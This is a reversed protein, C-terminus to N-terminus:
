QHKLTLLLEKHVQQAQQDRHDLKEKHGKLVQQLEKFTGPLEM